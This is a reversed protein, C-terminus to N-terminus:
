PLVAAAEIEVVCGPVALASVEVLTAAPMHDGFYARRAEAVAARDGVDTLYVTVKVVDVSTAGVHRLALDINELCRAAQARADGGGVVQGSEDVAVQGAVSVLRTGTAVTVNSFPGTPDLLGPVATHAEIM